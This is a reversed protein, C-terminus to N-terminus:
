QVFRARNNMYFESAQVQPLPRPPPLRTAVITDGVKYAAINVTSDDREKIEKVIAKVSSAAASVTGSSLAAAAAAAAAGKPKPRIMRKKPPPPEVTDVEIPAVDSIAPRMDEFDLPENSEAIALAASAKTQKVVEDSPLIARKGLKIVEPVTTIAAVASSTAVHTDDPENIESESRRFDIASFGRIKAMIAERDYDVTHRKDVITPAPAAEPAAEPAEYKRRKRLIDSPLKRSFHIVVGEDVRESSSSSSSSSSSKRLIPRQTMQLQKLVNM